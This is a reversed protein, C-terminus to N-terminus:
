PLVRLRARDRSPRAEPIARSLLENEPLYMDCQHCSALRERKMRARIEAFRPGVFVDGLKERSLDGLPDIRGNTMCCLYVLGNWAVFVHTWPAFCLHERYFGAAYLGDSSAKVADDGEGFPHVYRGGLPMGFRARLEAVRPAIEEDYERILRQSLRLTERKSDVPMPLVDSAGAEAALLVLEPYERFNERMMTFNIRIRTKQGRRERERAVYSIGRLTRDFSGPIRRIAEHTKRRAGDLSTSVSRIRARMLTRARAKTLLTLNSTFTVRMGREATRHALLEFDSRSLVEGGSFHVKKCGLEALEDLIGLFRETPLEPPSEGRGYRCMTCRLNCRATIKIKASRLFAPAEDHLVADRLPTLLLPDRAIQEVDYM